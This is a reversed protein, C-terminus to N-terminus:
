ASRTTILTASEVIARIHRVMAGPNRRVDETTFREVQWGRRRLARDRLKDHRRAEPTSHSAAGDIEIGLKIKELAFDLRAVLLPGDWVEVQPELDLGERRFALDAEMELGSEFDSNFEDAVQRLMAIGTRGGFDEAAALVADVTVVQRNVVDYLVRRLVAADVLRALDVITRADNLTPFGHATSVFGAIRRSRTIKVGPRQSRVVDFPVTIWTRYDTHRPDIGRLRAATGHSFWARDGAYLLAGVARAGATHPTTAAILVGPHIPLWLKSALRAIVQRRSVGADYAQQRTFVGFQRGATEALVAEPAEPIRSHSRSAAANM